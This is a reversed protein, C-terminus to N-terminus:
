ERVEFAFCDNESGDPFIVKLPSLRFLGYGAYDCPQKIKPNSHDPSFGGREDKPLYRGICECTASDPKAGTEEFKKFDEVAAVNKCSPCVFKWKMWDDGFLETGRRRWEDYTIKEINM